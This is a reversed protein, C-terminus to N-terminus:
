QKINKWLLLGIMPSSALYFYRASALMRYIIINEKGIKKALLNYGRQYILIKELVHIEDLKKIDKKMYGEKLLLYIQKLEKFYEKTEKSIKINKQESVYRALMFIERQGHVLETYFTWLLQTPEESSNQKTAIRRCFNDYRLINSEIESIYEINKEGELLKETNEILETINFLLKIFISETQETAPETINEIICVNKSRSVVEFGLLYEKITKSIKKFQEETQFELHIKNYDMRYANTLLARIVTEESAELKLQLIKKNEKLGTSIVINNNETDIEVESGKDLNNSKIWKSPLSIMLTTTGQKVLKRRM